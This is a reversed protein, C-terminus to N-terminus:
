GSEVLQRQCMIQFPSASRQADPAAFLPLSARASAPLRRKCAMTLHLPRAPAAEAEGPHPKQTTCLGGSNPIETSVLHAYV